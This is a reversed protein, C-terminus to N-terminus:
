PVLETVKRALEYTSSGLAKLNNILNAQSINKSKAAELETIINDLQVTTGGFEALLEDDFGQLDDIESQYKQSIEQDIVDLYAEKKKRMKDKNFTPLPM